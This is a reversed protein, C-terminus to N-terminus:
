IAGEVEANQPVLFDFMMQFLQVREAQEETKM